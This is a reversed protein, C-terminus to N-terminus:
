GQSRGAESIPVFIGGTCILFHSQLFGLYSGRTACTTFSLNTPVPTVSWFSHDQDWWQLPTHTHLFLSPPFSTSMITFFVIYIAM